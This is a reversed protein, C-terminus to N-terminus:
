KEPDSGSAAVPPPKEITPAPSEKKRRLSGLVLAALGLLIEDAFPILDPVALDFLFLALTLVFLWPFRLRAAYSLVPGVAANKAKMAKGLNSFGGIGTLPRPTRALNPHEPRTNSKL